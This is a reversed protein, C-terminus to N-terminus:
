GAGTLVTDRIGNLQQTGSGYHLSLMAFLESPDVTEAGAEVEITTRIMCIRPAQGVVPVAGKRTIHTYVNRRVPSRLVGSADAVGPTFLTPPVKFSTTFPKGITHANVGAQTGGLASVYYSKTLGPVSDAVVTYTPSTLGTVAAGTVPSSLNFPM